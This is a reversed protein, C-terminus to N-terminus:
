KRRKKSIKHIPNKTLKRIPKRSTRLRTPNRKRTPRYYKTTYKKGGYADNVEDPVIGFLWILFAENMNYKQINKPYGSPQACTKPEIRSLDGNVITLRATGFDIVCLKYPYSRVPLNSIFYVNRYGTDAHEINKHFLYEFLDTIKQNWETIKTENMDSYFVCDKRPVKITEKVGSVTTQVNNVIVYNARNPTDTTGLSWQNNKYIIKQSVSGIPSSPASSLEIDTSQSDMTTTIDDTKSFYDNAIDINSIGPINEMEINIIVPNGSSEKTITYIKPVVAYESISTKQHIIQRTYEQMFVEHLIFVIHKNIDETNEKPLTYRKVFIGDDNNTSFEIKSFKINTTFLFKEEQTGGRSKYQKAPISTEIRIKEIPNVIIQTNPEDVTTTLTSFWENYKLICSKLIDSITKSKPTYESLQKNYEDVTKYQRLLFKNITSSFVNSAICSDNVDLSLCPMCKGRRAAVGEM